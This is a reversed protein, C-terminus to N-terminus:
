GFAVLRAAAKFNKAEPPLWVGAKLAQDASKDFEEVYQAKGKPYLKALTAADFTKIHGFVRCLDPSNTGDGINAALPVDVIPTRIGGQAIGLSNRVVKIDGGQGSTEVLPFKPPATGDRVWTELSALVAALVAYMGGANIPAVCSLLGGSAKSPDLLAAEADGNGLDTLAYGGASYADQHSGGAMEWLRFNKSDPQRADAFEGVDVDYETEFTFVPVDVDSRLRAVAPMPDPDDLSRDGLPDAGSTRSYVLFGNYVGVLPHVANVYTVLRFSSQSEGTAIVRKVDYGAFPKVGKGDGRIAVAAQTFIDYSFLDGPHHLTGYRAPDSKRLGGEPIDIADSQVTDKSGNVGVAQATVGVWAAGSRIIQNHGQIWTPGADVGGTVNFWEVFVTGDFKAADKPRIVV